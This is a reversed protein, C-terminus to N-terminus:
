AKLGDLIKQEIEPLPAVIKKYSLYSLIGELDLFEFTRAHLFQNKLGNRYLPTYYNLLYITVAACSMYISLMINIQKNKMITNRM